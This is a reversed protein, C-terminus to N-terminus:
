NVLMPSAIVMNGQESDTNIPQSDVDISQSELDVGASTSCRPPKYAQSSLGHGRGRVSRSVGHSSFAVRKARGQTGRGPGGRDLV